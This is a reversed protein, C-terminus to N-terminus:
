RYYIHGDIHMDSGKTLAHCYDFTMNGNNAVPRTVLGRGTIGNNAKFTKLNKALEDTLSNNDMAFVTRDIVYFNSRDSDIRSHGVFSKVGIRDSEPSTWQGGARSAM